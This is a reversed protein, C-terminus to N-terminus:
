FSVGPPLGPLNMEGMKLFNLATTGGFSLAAAEEFSLKAPKLVLKGSAPM